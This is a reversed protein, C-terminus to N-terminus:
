QLAEYKTAKANDGLKYYIRYLTGAWKSTDNPELTEVAEFAAAAKIYLERVGAEIEKYKPDNPDAPADNLILQAKNIYSNGINTYAGSMKPDLEIAKENAAIADDYKKQYFLIFGKIYYNFANNPDAAILGEAFKIATEYDNHSSYYDVLNGSFYKSTPFARVGEELAKVFQVTDGLQKYANAMFEYAYQSSEADAKALPAFHVVEKWNETRYAMLAAYYAVKPLLTDNKIADQDKLMPLQASLVYQSFFTLADNDKEQNYFHLGGNILQPREQLLEKANEKRFKNKIKGKENPQQALEDCRKYANFMENLSWYYAATDYKQRLYMKEAQKLARKQACMGAVDWTLPDNNTEPNIKAQELLSSVKKWDPNTSDAIKKAEKVASKQAFAAGSTAVLMALTFLVKKM